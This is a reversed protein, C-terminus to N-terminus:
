RFKHKTLMPNGGVRTDFISWAIRIKPATAVAPAIQKKSRNKRNM